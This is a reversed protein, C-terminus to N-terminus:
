CPPRTFCSLFVKILSTYAVSRYKAQDSHHLRLISRFDKNNICVLRVAFCFADRVEIVTGIGM